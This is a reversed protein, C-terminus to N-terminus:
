KKNLAEKVIKHLYDMTDPKIDKGPEVELYELKASPIQLLIQRTEEIKDMAIEDLYGQLGAFLLVVQQRVSLPAFRKQKLIEVLRTGRAITRLTASDLDSAFSVFAEVERFQALDLKLTRAITKMLKVQAASGIRSVSLGVNIAPLIGRNFLGKELFIQGDTISIVNTPIYASVDGEQTEIIPLATLSGSGLKENLKAARELLRSHLYFVDGPYAERGPPRRVLLSMQRYAVAQKTLDDYIILAHMKNNRFYEGITCGSYPSLYQLPAPDSATAAVIITYSMANEKKLREAIQVVTSRKQGIAVYVCYIREKSKKKHNPVQNIITDIAIATKGTQRDGIILERQGRGIPIMSDIATIGTQVPENVTQRTVIGPAKIEIAKYNKKKIKLASGGDIKNGLADVVRGLLQPGIPVNVLRHGRTVTDGQGILSESAFIAVLVFERELNLAIGRITSSTKKNNFIVYEGARVTKLGIIKAVGDSVSTVVGVDELIINKQTKDFLPLTKSIIKQTNLKEPAKVAIKEVKKDKEKTDIIEQGKKPKRVYQRKKRAMAPIFKDDLETIILNTQDNVNKNISKSIKINELNKQIM